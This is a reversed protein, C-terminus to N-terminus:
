VVVPAQELLEFWDTVAEEVSSGVNVIVAVQSPPIVETVPVVPPVKVNVVGGLSAATISALM